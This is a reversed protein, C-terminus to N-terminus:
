KKDIKLQSFVDIVGPVSEVLDEASRQMGKTAIRGRLYVCGEEVTVEMQSADIDHM